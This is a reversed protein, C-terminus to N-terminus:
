AHDRGGGAAIGSEALAQRLQRLERAAEQLAAALEGAALDGAAISGGAALGAGAAQGTGAYFEGAASRTAAAVATSGGGKVGRMRSYLEDRITEFDKLGEITMEAGANGSATQVQVRALGLWREVVNSTLHIDQIRAYTLSIERRFLIGWRMTVGEDDFEYRLTQYRFYYYLCIFPFAPGTLLSVLVYYTLLSGDPQRRRAGAQAREAVTRDSHPAPM